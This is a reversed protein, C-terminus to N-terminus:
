ARRRPLGHRLARRFIASCRWPPGDPVPTGRRRRAHRGACTDRLRLPRLDRLAPRLAVCPEAM